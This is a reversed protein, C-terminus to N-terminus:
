CRNFMHSHNWSEIDNFLAGELPIPVKPQHWVKRKPTLQKEDLCYSILHTVFGPHAM